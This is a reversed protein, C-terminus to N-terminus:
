VLGSWFMAVLMVGAINMFSFPVTTSIYEKQKDTVINEYGICHFGYHIYNVLLFSHIEIWIHM